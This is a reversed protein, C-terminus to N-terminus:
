HPCNLSLWACIDRFIAAIWVVHHCLSPLLLMLTIVFCFFLICSSFFRATANIRVHSLAKTILTTIAVFSNSRAVRINTFPYYFARHLIILFVILLVINVIVLSPLKFLFLPFSGVFLILFM